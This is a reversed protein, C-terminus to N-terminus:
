LTRLDLKKIKAHKHKCSGSASGLQQTPSSALMLLKPAAGSSVGVVSCSRYKVCTQKKVSVLISRYVLVSTGVPLGTTEGVSGGIVSAGDGGGELPTVVFEGEFTGDNDGVRYGVVGGVFPGVKAGVSDGLVPPSVIWGVIGTTGPIGVMTGVRTKGGSDFTVMDGVGTKEGSGFPVMAGVGVNEGSGFAVTIGVIVGDMRSTGDPDGEMIGVPLRGVTVGEAGSTTSVTACVVYIM